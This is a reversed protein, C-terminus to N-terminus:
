SQVKAIYERSTGGDYDAYANAAVTVDYGLADTGVMKQDGFDSRSAKPIITRRAKGGTLALEVVASFQGAPLKHTITMGGNADSTVNEEGYRTAAANANMIEILTLQYSEAYKTIETLVTSGGMEEITSKDTDVSNTIGDSSVYGNDKWEESLPTTADTPLPTGYPATYFVGGVKPKGFSVNDANTTM